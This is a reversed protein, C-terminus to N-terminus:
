EGGREDCQRQAQAWEVITMAAAARKWTSCAVRLGGGHQESRRAVEARGGERWAERLSCSQCPASGAVVLRATRRRAWPPVGM